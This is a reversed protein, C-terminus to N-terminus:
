LAEMKHRNTLNHEKVKNPDKAEEATLPKGVLLNAMYSYTNQNISKQESYQFADRNVLQNYKSITDTLDRSKGTGNIVESNDSLMQNFTSDLKRLEEVHINTSTRVDKKNYAM